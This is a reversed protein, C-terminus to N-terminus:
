KHKQKGPGARRPLVKPSMIGGITACTMHRRAPLVRVRGLFPAPVAGRPISCLAAPPRSSWACAALGRSIADFGETMVGTNDMTPILGAIFAKPLGTEADAMAGELDPSLKSFQSHQMAQPAPTAQGQAGRWSDIGTARLPDSM